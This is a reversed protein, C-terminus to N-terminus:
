VIATKMVEHTFRPGSMICTVTGDVPDNTDETLTLRAYKDTSDLESSNVEIAYVQNAGATTTFGTSTATQKDGFTDGSTCVWYDFGIATTNSPTTDDCSEVTITATGTAGAAKQIVWTAKDYNSLNVIDTSPDGNFLDEYAAQNGSPMANVVHINQFFREKSM